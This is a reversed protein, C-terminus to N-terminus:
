GINGQEIDFHNVQQRLMTTLTFITYLGFGGTVPILGLAGLRYQVLPVSHKPRMGLLRKVKRIVDFMDTNGTSVVHEFCNHYM